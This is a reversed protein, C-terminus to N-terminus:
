DNYIIGYVHYKKEFDNKGIKHYETHHERCLSMKLYNSDDIKRRDRGMGVTDVHHLEGTNGCICCRRKKLCSYLYADIDDTRNLALDSLPIDNELIFDILYNIFLRATTISCDSLSFYEQGSEGCFEFKFLEKLPEPDHGTYLSIDKITAYIKKRQEATITRNDDIRIESNIVDGNRVKIIKSQVQEGPIFLKLWTGQETEKIGRIQSHYHM